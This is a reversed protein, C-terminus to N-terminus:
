PDEVVAPPTLEELRDAIAQILKAHLDPAAKELNVISPGYKERWASVAGPDDLQPIKGIAWGGWEEAERTARSKPAPAQNDGPAAERVPISEGDDDTDDDESVVGVMAALSFRRAYTVAAGLKQQDRRLGPDIPWQGIIYQGSPGHELTTELVIESETIIPIQTWAIQHRSLAARCANAIEALDAYKGKFQNDRSKRAALIEGQAAALATKLRRQDDTGKIKREPAQGEEPKPEQWPELPMVQVPGPKIDALNPEDAHDSTKKTM